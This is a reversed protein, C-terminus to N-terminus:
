RRETGRVRLEAIGARKTKGASRLTVRVYRAMVTSPATPPATWHTGDVSTRVTYSVPREKTWVPTIERISRVGGLDATLTGRPKDPVWSTITSGDVAAPAYRGPEESDATAARCRALDDTSALDPRRTKLVVPAKASVVSEGYPTDIRFPEGSTLRVTTQHAGLEIRYERGQWRLGTLTVGRALQPPLM